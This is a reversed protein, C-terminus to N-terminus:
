VSILYYTASGEGDIVFLGTRGEPSRRVLYAVADDDEWDNTFDIETIPVVDTINKFYRGDGFHIALDNYITVSCQNTTELIYSAVEIVNNSIM